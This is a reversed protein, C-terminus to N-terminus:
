SRDGAATSTGDSLGGSEQLGDSDQLGYWDQLLARAQLLARGRHSVTRKEELSMEAFTKGVEPVLFVPFDYNTQPPVDTRTGWSSASIM